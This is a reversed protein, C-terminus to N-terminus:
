NELSKKRGKRQDKKSGINLDPSQIIRNYINSNRGETRGQTAKLPM